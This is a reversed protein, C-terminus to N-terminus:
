KLSKLWLNREKCFTFVDKLTNKEVLLQGLPGRVFYIRKNGGRRVCIASVETM